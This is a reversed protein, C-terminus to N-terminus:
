KISELYDNILKDLDKIYTQHTNEINGRNSMFFKSVESPTIYRRLKRTAKIAIRDELMQRLQPKIM